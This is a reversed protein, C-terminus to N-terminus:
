ATLIEVLDEELVVDGERVLTCARRQDNGLSLQIV